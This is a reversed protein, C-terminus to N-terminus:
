VVYDPSIAKDPDSRWVFYSYVVSILAIPLITGLLLGLMWTGDLVFAGVLLVAGGIMFLRGALRHTKEWALSSSLTWPTRVGLFWNQRTKPLYNGKVIFLIAAGAIIFRVYENANPDSTVSRVMLLAIGVHVGLLLIMVASWIVTYAKRSKMLNNGNPDLKPALALLGAAFLTLCPMLWLTFVAESRDGYRDPTGDIGWHVPIQGEPLQGVAWINLSVMGIIAIFSFVLGTRIM